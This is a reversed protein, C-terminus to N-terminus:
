HALLGSPVPRSPVSRPWTVRSGVTTATSKLRKAATFRWTDLKEVGTVNSRRADRRSTDSAEVPTASRSTPTTVTGRLMAGKEVPTAFRSGRRKPSRVTGPFIVQAEVTIVPMKLERVTGPSMDQNEVAIVSCIKGEVEDKAGGEGLMPVTKSGTARGAM